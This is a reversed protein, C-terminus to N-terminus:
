KQITVRLTSLLKGNDLIKLLYLGGSLERLDITEHNSNIFNKSMILNGYNNYFECNLLKCDKSKTEINLINIAPNPYYTISFLDSYIKNASATNSCNLSYSAITDKQYNWFNDAFSVSDVEICTLLPNSTANFFQLTSYNTGNKINLYKLQNNSCNIQHLLNNMDLKLSDIQNDDCIISTLNINNSVDLKSLFNSGCLLQTIQINATLNLSQINNLACNLYNLAPNNSVNLSSLNSFAVNLFSLQSCSSIDVNTLGSNSSCSLYILQTNSSLNLSSIQNHDCMLKKLNINTSLDLNSIHNYACNLYQINTFSGIGTLNQIGLNYVVISDHYASAESIQIATDGNININLNSILAAKFALDPIYVNQANVKNFALFKSILLVAIILSNKMQYISNLLFPYHLM